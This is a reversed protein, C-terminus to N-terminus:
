RPQTTLSEGGGCLKSNAAEAWMVWDGAPDERMHAHSTTTNVMSYRKLQRPKMAKSIEDNGFDAPQEGAALGDSFGVGKANANQLCRTPPCEDHDCPPLTKM